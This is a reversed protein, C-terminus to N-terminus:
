TAIKLATFAESRIVKGGLRKKLLFGVQDLEAYNEVLRQVTLGTRDKLSYGKKHDGLYIPMKGAGIDDMGEPNVLPRGLLMAPQGAQVPPQWLYEGNANKLTRIVGETTSNMGWTAARRYQKKLGYLMKILVDVGNHSANTLGGAVGSLMASSIVRPDNLIGDPMRDGTGMVIADDEAIAVAGAFLDRLEGWVDALADDLTNNAVLTLAKLDNIEIRQQGATIEEPLVRVNRTGWAVKPTSLSGLTVADRGTRAVSVLGRLDSQNFAETIIGQEFQDPVLFGGEADSASSLVRKEDDSFNANSRGFRLMKDFASQRLQVDVDDDTVQPVTAAAVVMDDMRKSLTTIDDNIKDTKETFIPDNRLNDSVSDIHTKLTEHAKRMEVFVDKITQNDAM